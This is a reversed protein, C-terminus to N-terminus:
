ASPPRTRLARGSFRTAWAAARELEGQLITEGDSAMFSTPPSVVHAGKASLRRSLGSAASGMMWKESPRWTDFAAALKGRLSGEPLRDILHQLHHTAELHGHTPAGVVVLDAELLADWQVRYPAAVLRVPGFARLSGAVARAVHESTACTADYLVATKM